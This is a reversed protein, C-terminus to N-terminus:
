GRGQLARTMDVAGTRVEGFAKGFGSGNAVVLYLAILATGYKLAQRLM